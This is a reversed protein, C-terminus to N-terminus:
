RILLERFTHGTLERFTHQIIPYRHTLTHAHKSNCTRCALFCNTLTHPKDNWIREITLGDSERRNYTQMEADCYICKNKQLKRVFELRQATIYNEPIGRSSKRDAQKSHMVCRNAWHKRQYAAEKVRRKTRNNKRYIKRGALCQLCCTTTSDRVVGCLPCLGATRRRYYTTDM